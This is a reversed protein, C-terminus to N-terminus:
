GHFDLVAATLASLADISAGVDGPVELAHDAREVILTSAGLARAVHEFGDADHYPDADGAVILSRLGSQAALERVDAAGFLPTLWIASVLRDTPLRHAIGALARTGLSKALFVVEDARWERIVPLVQDAVADVLVSTADPSGAGVAPYSVVTSDTRGLQELARLPFRLAAGQPGYGGGPLVVVIRTRM